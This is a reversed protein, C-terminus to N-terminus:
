LVNSILPPTGCQICYLSCYFFLYYISFSLLHLLPSLYHLLPSLSCVLQHGMRRDHWLHVLRAARHRSRAHARRTADDPKRNDVLSWQADGVPLLDRRVSRAARGGGGSPRRQVAGVSLVSRCERVRVHIPRILTM